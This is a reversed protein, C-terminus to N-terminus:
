AADTEAADTAADECSCACPPLCGIYLTNGPSCVNVVNRGDTQACCNNSGNNDTDPTTETPTVSTDSM